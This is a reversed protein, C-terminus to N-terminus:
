PRSRQIVSFDHGPARQPEDKSEQRTVSLYGVCGIIVITLVLIVPGNGIGLGGENIPKGTWDAFEAGVPRTLIYAWWFAVIENLRLAWYAMGPLAFAFLFLVGSSLFGLHFTYATLDGVATGMAFTAMVTTWYFIERRLTIIRHISLTRESLYWVILIVALAVAFGITSDLYPVGLVIHIVDAGMTGFVAVMVVAFWYITAVYRRLVLQMGIALVFTVFVAIVAAYPDFNHVLYDSISEGLATTLLKIIWFYVLVEPVKRLTRRNLYRALSKM